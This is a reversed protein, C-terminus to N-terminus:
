DIDLGWRNAWGQTLEQNEQNTRGLGPFFPANEDLANLREMEEDTLAFDFLELNEQIHEPNSSGPIAIHGAQM